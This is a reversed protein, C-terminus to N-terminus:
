ENNNWDLRNGDFQNNLALLYRMPSTHTLHMQIKGNFGWFNEHVINPNDNHQCDFLQDVMDINIAFQNIFIETIEIAKNKIIMGNEDCLVDDPHKNSTIINVVTPWNVQFDIRGPGPEFSSNSYVLQEQDFIDLRMSGNCNHVNTILSITTKM